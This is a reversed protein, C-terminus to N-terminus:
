WVLVILGSKARLCLNKAQGQGLHGVFRTHEEVTAAAAHDITTTAIGLSKLRALLAEKTSLPNDDDHAADAEAEKSGSGMFSLLSALVQSRRSASWPLLAAAVATGLLVRLM